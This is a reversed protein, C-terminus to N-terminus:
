LISTSDALVTKFLGEPCYAAITTLLSNLTARKIVSMRNSERVALPGNLISATPDPQVNIGRTPNVSLAQWNAYAGGEFFELYESDQQCGSRTINSVRAFRDRFKGNAYETVM